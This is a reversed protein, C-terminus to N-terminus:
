SPDYISLYQLAVQIELLESLCDLYALRRTYSEHRTEALSPLSTEGLAHLQEQQEATSQLASLREFEARCHKRALEQRSFLAHAQQVLERYQAIASQRSMLRSGQARAIAERNRNWLPLTFGFDLAFKNNGEEHSYGPSLSIDPYQKRIELKLEAETTHYASMAALLKPHHLLSAETPLPVSAPVGYPLKGAVEIDGVAPHLGLMSILELHKDLHASELEQLEKLLDSHRQTAAHLEAASAEGLDHLRSINAQEQEVQKLRQAMLEHKTHTIQIVYCLARLRMLYDCELAQLARLDAASYMEAVRRALKTRGSVPISLELAAGRDYQVGSLYRKANLELSPDDWLGAYKEAHKSTLLKLRAKNLDPNIFLGYISLKEWTLSTLKGAPALNLSMERWRATNAFFDPPDPKYTACGSCVLMSLTCISSLLLYLPAKKPM